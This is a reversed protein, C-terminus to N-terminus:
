VKSKWFILNLASPFVQATPVLHPHRTGVFSGIDSTFTLAAEAQSDEAMFAEAAM